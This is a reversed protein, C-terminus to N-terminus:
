APILVLECGEFIRVRPIDRCHTLYSYDQRRSPLTYVIAKLGSPIPRALAPVSRTIATASTAEPLTVLRKSPCVSRIRDIQKLGLPDSITLPPTSPVIRIQSTTLPLHRRVLSSSSMTQDTAKPGVSIRYHVCAITPRHGHPLNIVRIRDCLHAARSRVFSSIDGSCNAKSCGLASTQSCKSCDVFLYLHLTLTCHPIPRVRMRCTKFHTMQSGLVPAIHVAVIASAQPFRSRGDTHRAREVIGHSVFEPNCSGKNQVLVDPRQPNCRTLEWKESCGEGTVPLSYQLSCIDVIRNSKAHESM